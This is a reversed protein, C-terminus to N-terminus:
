PGAQPWVRPRLAMSFSCGPDFDIKARGCIESLKRSVLSVGQEVLPVIRSYRMRMSGIVGLAGAPISNVKYPAAALALEVGAGSGPQIDDAILVTVGEKRQCSAMLRTLRAKDEFFRVAWCAADPSHMEKKEFVRSVGELFLQRRGGSAGSILYKLVVESYLRDAAEKEIANLYGETFIDGFDPGRLRANLYQEIRRLNFYSLKQGIQLTSSTVIGLDSIVVALVRGADVEVLKIERVTDNVFGPSLVVGAEESAESLLSCCRELLGGISVDRDTFVEDNSETDAWFARAASDDFVLSEVFARFGRHTPIRGASAHPQVTLGLEDLAAMVSRVTAPSLDLRSKALVRSSPVPSGTSIYTSVLANLIKMRRREAVSKELIRM